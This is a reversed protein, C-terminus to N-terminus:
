KTSKRRLHLGLFLLVLGGAFLLMGNTDGTGPLKKTKSPKNTSHTDKPTNKPTDKPTTKTVKTNTLDMGKVKVSYGSVQKESVTYSYKEGTKDKEPLNTFNYKWNSKATVKIPTGYAKGNQLLQVEISAPRTKENDGVWTKTGSATTVNKEDTVKTNTLNMGDTTTKYGPVAIETVSYRYDNNNADGKPLDKFSYKWDNEKTVKVPDGYTQGNQLLQVEIYDPRDKATDNKWTKEGSVTTKPADIKTNIVNMGDVKTEYGPVAKEVITYNYAAGDNTTEPLNKFEYKWDSDKTVTVPFGYDQGNQQLQIEISAPRDNETDNKWTKKDTM